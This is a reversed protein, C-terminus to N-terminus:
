PSYGPEVENASEGRGARQEVLSGFLGRPESAASSISPQKRAAQANSEGPAEGPMAVGYRIAGWLTLCEMFRRARSYQGCPSRPARSSGRTRM